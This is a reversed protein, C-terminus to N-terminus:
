PFIQHGPVDSDGPAKAAFAKSRTTNLTTVPFISEKKNEPKSERNTRLLRASSTYEQLFSMPHHIFPIETPYPYECRTHSILHSGELSLSSPTWSGRHVFKPELFDSARGQMPASLCHSSRRTLLEVAEPNIDAPTHEVRGESDEKIGKELGESWIFTRWQEENIRQPFVM